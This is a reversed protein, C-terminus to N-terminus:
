PKERKLVLQAEGEATKDAFGAPRPKGEGRAFRIKLDDGKLEYIGKAHPTVDIERPKRAPDLKFTQEPETKDGVRITVKDGQFTVTLEKTKEEPLTVGDHEGSVVKWSGQFQDKDGKADDKPKDAALLLGAAMVLLVRARM